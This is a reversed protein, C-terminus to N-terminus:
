KRVLRYISKVEDVTIERLIFLVVIYVILGATFALLLGIISYIGLESSFRNVIYIVATSAIGAIGIKIFTRFSIHWVLQQKTIVRAIVFFIFYSVFTSVAAGMFGFRPILFINFILNIVVGLLSLLLYKVSQKELLYAITSYQSLILFFIGASVFPIATYGIQFSGELLNIVIDRSLVSLCIIVLVMIIIVYRILETLELETQKRGYREWTKVLQPYAALMFSSGVLTLPFKALRYSTDYVAVESSGILYQILFRDGSDLLNALLLNLSLPLGFVLSAKLVSFNIELKSLLEFDRIILFFDIAVMTLGWGLFMALLGYPVLLYALVASILLRGFANLVNVVSFQAPKGRARLVFNYFRLLSYLLLFFVIIWGVLGSFGLEEGQLLLRASLIAPFSLFIVSIVVGFLNTRLLEERNESNPFDRLYANGTWGTVVFMFTNIIQYIIIYQGYVYPPMVRTLVPLAIIGIVAVSLNGVAYVASESLTSYVNSSPIQNSNTSRV